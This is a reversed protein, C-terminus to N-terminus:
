NKCPINVVSSKFGYNFYPHQYGCVVIKAMQSKCNKIYQPNTFVSKFVELNKLIYVQAISTNINWAEV